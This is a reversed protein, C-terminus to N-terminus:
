LKAGDPTLGDRNFHSKLEEVTKRRWELSSDLAAESMDDIKDYDRKDGLGTRAMPSVVLTEESRADFWANLRATEAEAAKTSPASSQAVVAPAHHPPAQGGGADLAAAGSLLLAALLM